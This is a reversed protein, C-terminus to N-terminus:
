QSHFAYDITVHSGALTGQIRVTATVPMVGSTTGSGDLVFSTASRTSKGVMKGQEDEADVNTGYRDVLHVASLEAASEALAQAIIRSRFRQAQRLSRSSDILMLEMLAFYLIALVIATILVYGRQSRTPVRRLSKM